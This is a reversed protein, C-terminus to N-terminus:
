VTDVAFDGTLELYGFPESENPCYMAHFELEMSALGDASFPLEVPSGISARHLVLKITADRCSVDHELTVQYVRRRSLSELILQYGQAIASPTTNFAVNATRPNIEDIAVRVIIENRFSVYYRTDDTADDEFSKFNEGPDRINALAVNGLEISQSEGEELLTCVFTGVTYDPLLEACVPFCVDSMM